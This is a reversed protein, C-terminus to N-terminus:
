AAILSSFKALDVNGGSVVAVIPGRGAKGTMAAALSLAGAGEAIVRAKEALLRM